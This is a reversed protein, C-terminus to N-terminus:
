GQTTNPQLKAQLQDLRTKQQAADVAGPNLTLYLKLSDVAERTRGTRDYAYSLFKYNDPVNPDLRRSEELFHVALPFNGLKFYAAGFHSLFAPNNPQLKLAQGINFLGRNYDRLETEYLYAHGITDYFVAQQNVALEVDKAEGGRIPAALGQQCLAIARDLHSRNSTADFLFLHSSALNVMAVRNDPSVQLCRELEDAAKDYRQFKIYQHGLIYHPMMQDDATDAGHEFLTLDDKWV